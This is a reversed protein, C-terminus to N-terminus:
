VALIMTGFLGPGRGLYSADIRLNWWPSTLIEAYRCSTPVGLFNKSFGDIKGLKRALVAKLRYKM